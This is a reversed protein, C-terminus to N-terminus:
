APNSIDVAYMRDGGRGTGLYLNVGNPHVWVEETTFATRPLRGVVEAPRRVDRAVLNVTATASRDGINAVVTYSGAEYGVFAGDEDIMGHGPAFSWTPVVGEIRNGQSDRIDMQ